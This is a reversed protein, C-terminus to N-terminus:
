GTIIVQGFVNGKISQKKLVRATVTSDESIDGAVKLSNLTDGM